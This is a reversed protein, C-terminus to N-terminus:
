NAVGGKLDFIAILYKQIQYFALYSKSNIVWAVWTLLLIANIIIKIDIKPLKSFKFGWEYVSSELRGKM